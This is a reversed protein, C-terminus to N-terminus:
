VREELDSRVSRWNLTATALGDADTQHEIEVDDDALRALSMFSIRHIDAVSQTPLPADLELLETGPRGQATSTIRSCAFSGDVLEVFIDRRGAVLPSHEGYGTFSVELVNGVQGLPVLDMGFSPVWLSRQRGRLWYLLGRFGSQEGRGYLKLKHQQLIFGHGRDTRLPRGVQNDLTIALREFGASLDETEDPRQTFVPLGRYSSSPLLGPLDSPDVLTFSVEATILTDTKRQVAPLEAFFGLRVPYLRTGAPWLKTTPRKLALREPEVQDVQLLEMADASDGLMLAMGGAVFDFGETRCPLTLTNAFVPQPIQQVDPWIPVYFEEAGRVYALHNFMTRDAGQLLSKCSLTRRPALRIARRLEAGTESQQVDTLWSLREVVPDTWNPTFPWVQQVMM